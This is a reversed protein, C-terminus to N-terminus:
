EMPTTTPLHGPNLSLAGTVPDRLYNGGATPEELVPAPSASVAAAPAAGPAAPAVPTPKLTTM